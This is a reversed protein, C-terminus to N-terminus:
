INILGKTNLNAIYGPLDDKKPDYGFHDRDFSVKAVQEAILAYIVDLDQQAALERVKEALRKRRKDGWSPLQDLEEIGKEGLTDTIVQIFPRKSMHIGEM